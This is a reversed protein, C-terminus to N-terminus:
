QGAARRLEANEELLSFKQRELALRADECATLKRKLDDVEKALARRASREAELKKALSERETREMDLLRELERHARRDRKFGNETDRRNAKTRQQILAIAISAMSTILAIWVGATEM